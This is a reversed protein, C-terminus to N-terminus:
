GSIILGAGQGDAALSTKGVGGKGAMAIIKTDM